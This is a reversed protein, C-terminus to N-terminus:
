ARYLEVLRAASDAISYGAEAVKASVDSRPRRAQEVVEGAWTKVPADLPLYTVLDSFAAEPTIESSVVCPLSAAQAEVLVVPLGEYLSPMLLVDVGQLLDPIDGRVGLFWVSESLGAERVQRELIGREEGDGVLLLVASPDNRLLEAFVDLAFFLNKQEVMRGICAVVTQNEVGLSRRLAGRKLPDFRYAAVNVGNKIVSYRNARAVADPFLWEAAADSCAVYDTVTRGMRDRYRQQREPETRLAECSSNHSHIIRKRVGALKAVQLMQIRSPTDTELHAAIYRGRRITRYTYLLKFLKLPIRRGSADWADRISYLVGGVDRIAEVYEPHASSVPEDLLVDFCVGFPATAKALEVVMQSAGDVQLGHKIHLVRQRGDQLCDGVTM